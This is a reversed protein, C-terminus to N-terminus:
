TDSSTTEEAPSEETGDDGQEESEENTLHVKGKANKKSDIHAARCHLQGCKGEPGNGPKTCPQLGSKCDKSAHGVLLCLYCARNKKILDCVEQPTKNKLEPCKLSRKAGHSAKSCIICPKSKDDTAEESQRTAFSRPLSGQQNRQQNKSSNSQNSQETKTPKSAQISRTRSEIRFYAQLQNIWETSSCLRHSNRETYKAWERNFHNPMAQEASIIFSQGDRPDILGQDLFNQHLTQLTSLRIKAKDFDKMVLPESAFARLKHNLEHHLKDPTGFESFFSELVVQISAESPDLHTFPASIKDEMSLLFQKFIRYESYKLQEKMTKYNEEWIPLWKIYSSVTGDFKIIRRTIDFNQDANSHALALVAGALSTLESNASMNPSMNANQHPPPAYESAPNYHAPATSGHAGVPPAYRTDPPYSHAPAAPPRYATFASQSTPPANNVPRFGTNMRPAPNMYRVGGVASTGAHGGSGAAHRTQAGNGTQQAPFSFGVSRTRPVTGTCTPVNNQHPVSVPVQNHPSNLNPANVTPPIESITTSPRNLNQQDVDVHTSEMIDSSVAESEPFVELYQQECAEFM